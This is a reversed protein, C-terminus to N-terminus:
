GPAARAVAHERYRRASREGRARRTRMAAEYADRLSSAACRWSFRAARALGLEACRVAWAQDTLMRELAAAWQEVDGPDILVGAGGLVEPLAGRDAAIVPVGAAMAELAPIGFGEDLSPMVLLRAGAYLREKDDVYGLHRVRGGLRLSSLRALWDDADPTARGALVLPPAERGRALLREYADLLVGVNKRKELTGLFLVYGGPPLNPRQGLRKWGPAGPSCVHIREHPVGFTSSVLSATHQSNV